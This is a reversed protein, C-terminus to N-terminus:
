NGLYTTGAPVLPTNIGATRNQHTYDAAVFYHTRDVTLAGGVAFSAQALSDPIDPAQIPIDAGNARPTVCTPISGPCQLDASFTDKQLAGPRGLFLVEGQTTNAGSKTVINIGASATWGFEASFARSMVNMEQVAGVPITSFMTQRGWPEDGTAGDVIFDAERRGGAGTVFYVSNMFLDGTGKAPRFAANLLPVYSLKRGLLPTDELQEAALRTGLEPDNRVGEATGYVTVESVGGAAVLKVRVTATEGARLTVEPVQEAAFGLKTVTVKYTGTIALGPVTISGDPGSTTDRRAGTSANVISVQAGPIVAGTQDVVVVTIAATNPSQAFVVISIERVVFCVFVVFFFKRNM